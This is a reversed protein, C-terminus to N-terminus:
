SMKGAGQFSMEGIAAHLVRTHRELAAQAEAWGPWWQRKLRGPTLMRLTAASTRCMTSRPMAWWMKPLTKNSNAVDGVSM